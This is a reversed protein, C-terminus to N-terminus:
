ARLAELGNVAKCGGPLSDLECRKGARLLVRECADPIADQVRTFGGVAGGGGLDFGPRFAASLLEKTRQM